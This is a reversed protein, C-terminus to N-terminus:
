GIKYLIGKKIAMRLATETENLLKKAILKLAKLEDATINELENKSYGCIFFTKDKAIYAVLARGGSRRGRGALAIRKKYVHGGLAAEVLGKEMEKVAKVFAADSIKKKKSWKTMQKTKFIKV